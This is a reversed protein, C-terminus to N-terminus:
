HSCTHNTALCKVFNEQNVSHDQSVTNSVLKVFPQLSAKPPDLLTANSACVLRLLTESTDLNHDCCLIAQSQSLRHHM